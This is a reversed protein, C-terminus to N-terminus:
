CRCETQERPGRKNTVSWMSAGILGAGSLYVGPDYFLVFKSLYMAAAAALGLLFPGYGGRRRVRIFIAGLPLLLFAVALPRMWIANITSSVGLAGMWAMWCIPCKPMLATLLASIASAGVAGSPGAFSVSKTM